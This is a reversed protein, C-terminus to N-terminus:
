CPTPETSNSNIGESESVDLSPVRALSRAAGGCSNGAALGAPPLGAPRLGACALVAAILHQEVASASLNLTRAIEDPSQGYVKRLTFVQRMTAPWGAVRAILDAERDARHQRDARGVNNGARGTLKGVM